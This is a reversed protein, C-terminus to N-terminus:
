SIDADQMASFHSAWRVGVDWWSNVVISVLATKSGSYPDIVIDLGGWNGLYLSNFAGFIIGHLGTGTGKTLTSPVNTSVFARYGNLMGVPARLAATQMNMDTWVYQATGSAKETTKLKGRVGPTTIYALTGFDANASAVDTELEVVHAWTPAAGNTGGAVDGIGTVNLIGEPVNGSGAGNIAAVDIANEMARRLEEMVIREVDPTNQIMLQKSIDTTAGVRNPSMDLVSFTSTVEANADNEGEWAASVVANKTFRINSTLGRLTTAGALEVVPRPRLPAIHGAFDTFVSYGGSADTGVVQDRKQPTGNMIFTPVAVNGEINKGFARYENQAEEFAEKEAGTQSRGNMANQMSRLLSFNKSLEEEPTAKNARSRKTEIKRAEETAREQQEAELFEANEIDSKLAEARAKLDSVNTREDDTLSRKGKTAADLISRMKEIEQAREQRLEDSRKM